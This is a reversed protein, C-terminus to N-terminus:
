SFGRLLAKVAPASRHEAEFEFRCEQCSMVPKITALGDISGTGPSLIIARSGKFTKGGNAKGALSFGMPRFEQDYFADIIFASAADLPFPELEVDAKGAITVRASFKVPASRGNLEIAGEFAIPEVYWKGMIEEKTVRM